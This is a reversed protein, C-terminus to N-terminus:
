SEIEETSDSSETANETFMVLNFPLESISANYVTQHVLRGSAYSSMLDTGREM